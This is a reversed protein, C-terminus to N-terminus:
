NQKELTRAIVLLEPETVQALLESRDTYLPPLPLDGLQGGLIAGTASMLV